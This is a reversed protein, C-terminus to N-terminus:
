VNKITKISINSMPVGILGFSLSSTHVKLELTDHRWEHQVHSEQTGTAVAIDFTYSGDPLMPMLFSFEANFYQQKKIVIRKELYTLYTNEAFIIQGLRDKFHFGVIPRELSQLAVATIRLKVLEGGVVWSLPQESENVLVVDEIKAGGVGFGSADPDFRFVEIDNRIPSANIFKQRMDYFDQREQRPTQAPDSNTNANLKVSDDKHNTALYTEVVEKASGTAVVRGNELMVASDCLNLVAGTDHSVFVVSGNEMFKRLFRMCKQAFFADGVALAEDIILIDADVHAIVAFALRVLMGSSYTKVPQEIFKGIDAFEIIEEYKSDIESTTLGLIAANMYVNERGTFEPNFGSGLELLAAVRGNIEVTGSSPSLTGTIIQLLTSKGAGNSGIIGLTEGRKVEFNIDKLAWHESFYQKPNLGVLQRLRPFISQWLRDQPREYIEYGKGLNSVRIAINEDKTNDSIPESSM